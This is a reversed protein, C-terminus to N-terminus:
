ARGIPLQRTRGAQLEDLAEDALQELTSQSRELNRQWRQESRLEEIILAALADQEAPPLSAAEAFAQELLTTM